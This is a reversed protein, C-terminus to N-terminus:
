HVKSTVTFHQKNETKDCGVVVVVVVVGVVVVLVVGISVVDIGAVGIGVVGVIDSVVVFVFSIEFVWDNGLIEPEELLGVPGSSVSRIDWWSSTVVVDCGGCLLVNGEVGLCSLCM